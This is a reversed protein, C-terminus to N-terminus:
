IFIESYYDEGEKKVSTVRPNPFVYNAPNTTPPELGNIDFHDSKIEIFGNKMSWLKRNTTLKANDSKSIYRWFTKRNVFSLTISPPTELLYQKRNNADDFDLIHSDNDGKACIRLYGIVNNKRKKQISANLLAAIEDRKEQATLNKNEEILNIIYSLSFQNKSTHFAEEEENLQRILDQSAKSNLLYRDDIPGGDDVFVNKFNVSQGEPVQNTFLYLRNENLDKLNTYNNFYADTARVEFTFTTTENLFIFPEYKNEEKLASILLCFGESNYRLLLRQYKLLSLTAGYPSITLFENIAYKGLADKKEIESLVDDTEDVPLFKKDNSDLFYGHHINVKFLPKYFM